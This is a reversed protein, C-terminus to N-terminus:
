GPTDCICLERPERDSAAPSTWRFVAPILNKTQSCSESSTKVLSLGAPIKSHALKKMVDKGKEIVPEFDVGGLFHITTSKGSGSTGMIVAIPKGRIRSAAKKIVRLESILSTLDVPELYEELKQFLNKAEALEIVVHMMQLCYDSFLLLM